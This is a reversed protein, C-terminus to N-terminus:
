MSLSHPPQAQSELQDPQNLTELPDSHDLTVQVAQSELQDPQNLTELTELPDSHDLTVQLTEVAELRTVLAQFKNELAEKDQIVKQLAGYMSKYIQDVDLGYFNSMNAVPDYSTITVAKPFVTKVEQAIWGVMHKDKTQTVEAYSADYQFRKLKLGKVIDYCIQIDADEIDTKIRRDSPITWTSSNPKAASDIGLHLRFLPTSTAIGVNGNSAIRMRESPLLSVLGTLFQVTGGLAQGSGLVIVSTGYASSQITGSAGATYTVNASLYVDSPFDAPTGIYTGRLRGTVNDSNIIVNSAFTADSSISASGIVNL